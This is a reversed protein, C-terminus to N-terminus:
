RDIAGAAAKVLAEGICGSKHTLAKPYREM